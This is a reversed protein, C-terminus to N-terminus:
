LKNKLVNYERLNDLKSSFGNKQLGMFTKARTAKFPPQQLM